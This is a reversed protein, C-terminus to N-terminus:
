GARCVAMIESRRQVAWRSSKAELLIARRTALRRRFARVVDGLRPCTFRKEEVVEWLAARSLHLVEVYTLAQCRLTRALQRDCLVFDQSMQYLEIPPLFASFLFM